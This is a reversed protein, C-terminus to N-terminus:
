SSIPMKLKTIESTDGTIKIRKKIEATRACAYAFIRPLPDKEWGVTEEEVELVGAVHDGKIL